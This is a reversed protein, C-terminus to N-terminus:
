SASDPVRYKPLFPRLRTALQWWQPQEAAIAAFTADRDAESAFLAFCTAGSGSMRALMSGKAAALRGLVERIQPALTMAPPELDNRGALSESLADGRGLPGRDIGDWAKFVAATSLPIRPNVLLVPLGAVSGDAAPLLQDGRAEGRLTESVVCAPVDAGLQRGIEILEHADVPLKWWRALLRLVAAADASGGGIGAAVPLKKDLRLAAGEAVGYRGRLANAAKLIINDSSPPLVAAFEGAVDLNLGEGAAVSLRDGGEAFAFITEIDHYGDAARRRVHLALNIKAYAIEEM